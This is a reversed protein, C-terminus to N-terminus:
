IPQNEATNRWKFFSSFFEPNIAAVRYVVHRGSYMQVSAWFLGHEASITRINKDVGVWSIAIRLFSSFSFSVSSYCTFLTDGPM